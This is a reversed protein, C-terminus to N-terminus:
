TARTRELESQTKGAADASEGSEHQKLFAQLDSERIRAVGGVKVVKLGRETTWRWLTARSVRLMQRVESLTFFREM